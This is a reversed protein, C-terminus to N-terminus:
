RREDTVGLMELVDEYAQVQGRYFAEYVENGLVEYNGVQCRAVKLLLDIQEEMTITERGRKQLQSAM